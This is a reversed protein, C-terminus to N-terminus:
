AVAQFRMARYSGLKNQFAAPPTDGERNRHYWGAHLEIAQIIERPVDTAAGYGCVFRVTVVDTHARTVPWVQDYKRRVVNIGDVEGLEYVDTSLTQTDGAQDTYTVSTVSSVPPYSLWLPDDFYDFSQDWTQTLFKRRTVYEAAAQADDSLDELYGEEDDADIRCHVYLDAASVVRGDPETVIVLKAM